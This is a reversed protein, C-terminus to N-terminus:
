RRLCFTVRRLFQILPNSYQDANEKCIMKQETQHFCIISSHRNFLVKDARYPKVEITRRGNENNQDHSVDITVRNCKKLDEKKVTYLTTENSLISDEPDVFEGIVTKRLKIYEAPCNDNHGNM